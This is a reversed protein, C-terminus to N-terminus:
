GAGLGNEQWWIEIKDHPGWVKTVRGDFVKSDNKPLFIDIIGKELNDKDPVVQHPSGYSEIADSILWSKPPKFTFIVWFDSLPFQFGPPVSLRVVDKYSNWKQVVPRKAWRDRRTMRPKGMPRTHITALRIHPHLFIHGANGPLRMLM